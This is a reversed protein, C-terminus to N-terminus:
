CGTLKTYCSNASLDCNDLQSQLLHSTVDNNKNHQYPLTKNVRQVNNHRDSFSTSVFQYVKPEYESHLHVLRSNLFLVLSVLLTTKTSIEIHCIHFATSTYIFDVLHGTWNRQQNLPGKTMFIKKNYSKLGIEILIFGNQNFYIFYFMKKLKM